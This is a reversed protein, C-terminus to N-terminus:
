LLFSNHNSNELGQFAFGDPKSCNTCKKRYPHLKVIVGPAGREPVGFVEM